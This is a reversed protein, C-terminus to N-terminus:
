NHYKPKEYYGRISVKGFGGSTIPKLFEFDDISPEGLVM